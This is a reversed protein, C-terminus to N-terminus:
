SIFMVTRLGDAVLKQAPLLARYIGATVIDVCRAASCHKLDTGSTGGLPAHTCFAYLCVSAGHDLYAVGGRQQRYDHDCM